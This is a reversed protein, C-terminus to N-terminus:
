SPCLHKVGYQHSHTRAHTNTHTCLIFHARAKTFSATDCPLANGLMKSWLCLWFGKRPSGMIKDEWLEWDTIQLRPESSHPIYQFKHHHMAQIELFFFSFFFFSLECCWCTKEGPPTCINYPCWVSQNKFQDHTPSFCEVTMYRIHRSHCVQSYQQAAWARIVDSEGACSQSVLSNPALGTQGPLTSIHKIQWVLLTKQAHTAYVTCAHQTHTQSGTHTHTHAWAAASNANHWCCETVPFAASVSRHSIFGDLFLFSPLSSTRASIFLVSGLAVLFPFPHCFLPFLWLLPQLSAPHHSHPSVSRWFLLSPSSLALTKDPM